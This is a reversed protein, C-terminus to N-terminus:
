PGKPFSYQFVAHETKGGLLTDIRGQVENREQSTAWRNWDEISEWTGIVVYEDPKDIRQLTEGSIYGPQVTARTRLERLLPELDQARGEPVIRRIIVKVAM